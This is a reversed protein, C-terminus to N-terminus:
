GFRKGGEELIKEVTTHHEKAYAALREYLPGTVVIDSFSKEFQIDITDPTATVEVKPTVNRTEREIMKGIDRGTLGTASDVTIVIQRQM